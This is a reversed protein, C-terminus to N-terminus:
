WAFHGIRRNKQYADHKMGSAIKQYDSCKKGLENYKAALAKLAKAKGRYNLWLVTVIFVLCFVTGGIIGAKISVMQNILHLLVRQLDTYAFLLEM